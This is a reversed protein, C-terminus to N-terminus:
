EDGAILNKPLQLNSLPLNPGEKEGDQVPVPPNLYSETVDTGESLVNASPLHVASAPSSASTGM